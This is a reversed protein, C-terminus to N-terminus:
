EDKQFVLEASSSQGNELVLSLRQAQEKEFAVLYYRNWTNKISVLHSFQNDHPLEKIKLPLKSNLRLTSTIADLTNPNHMERKEKVYFSVFFYENEHFSKSFIENLYLASMVGEVRNDSTIKNSQLSSASLEQEETMDFKTFANKTACGTLILLINLTILFFKM